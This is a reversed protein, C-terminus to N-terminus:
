DRREQCSIISYNEATKFVWRGFQLRKRVKGKSGQRGKEEQAVWDALRLIEGLAQLCDVVTYRTPLERRLGPSSHASRLVEHFAKRHLRFYKSRIKIKAIYKKDNPTLEFAGLRRNRREALESKILERLNKGRTDFCDILQNEKEVVLVLSEFRLLRANKKSKYKGPVLLKQKTPIVKAKTLIERLPQLSDRLAGKLQPYADLVRSSQRACEGFSKLGSEYVTFKQDGCSLELYFGKGSGHGQSVGPTEELIRDRPHIYFKADLLSAQSYPISFRNRDLIEESPILFGPICLKGDLLYYLEPSETNFLRRYCKEESPAANASQVVQRWLRYNAVLSPVLKTDIFVGTRLARLGSKIEESSFHKLVADLYALPLEQKKNEVVAQEHASEAM